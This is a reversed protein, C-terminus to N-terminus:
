RTSTLPTWWALSAGPLSPAPRSPCCRRRRRHSQPSQPCVRCTPLGPLAAAELPPPPLALLSTGVNNILIDLGGFKAVTASVMAEADAEEGVDGVACSVREAADPDPDSEALAAVAAELVAQRRGTIVVSAGALLLVRAVERGIGTGGGMVLAVKGAVSLVAGVTNPTPVTAVAPAAAPAPPAAPPQQQTLYVALAAGVGAGVATAALSSLSSMPM